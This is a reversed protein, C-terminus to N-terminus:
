NQCGSCGECDGGCSQQAMQEIEHNTAEHSEVVQGKFNLSAGALPHNLDVTVKEPGVEVVQALFHNGDENQLPVVAGEHIQREDFHGDVTFIAKDLELVREDEYDGYADAPSLTFDFEEGTALPAIQEEFRPLTEGFGSIFIFPKEPTAEEVFEREGDSEAYLKYAVAIYRNQQKEM